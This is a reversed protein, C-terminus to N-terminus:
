LSRAVECNDAAINQRRLNEAQKGLTLGSGAALNLEGVTQEREAPATRHVAVLEGPCAIVQAIPKAQDRRLDAEAQFPRVESIPQPGIQFGHSRRLIEPRRHPLLEAPLAGRECRPPRPNLDRRSWWRGRQTRVGRSKVRWLEEESIRTAYAM